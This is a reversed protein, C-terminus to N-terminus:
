VFSVFKFNAAMAWSCHCSRKEDPCGIVTGQKKKSFCVKVASVNIHCSSPNLNIIIQEEENPSV